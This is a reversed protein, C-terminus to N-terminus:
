RRTGSSTGMGSPRKCSVASLATIGNVLLAGLILALAIIGVLAAGISLALFVRNTIRRRAYLARNM